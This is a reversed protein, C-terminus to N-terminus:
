QRNSVNGLFNSVTEMYLDREKFLADHGSERFIVLRSGKIGGHITRACTPTVLDRAGVTVLTPVRIQKLKRVVNWSGLSGTVPLTIADSLGMAKMIKGNFTGMMSFNYPTVRLDTFHRRVFEAAAKKYEPDDFRGNAECTEIIV